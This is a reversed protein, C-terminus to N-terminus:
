QTLPYRPPKTSWSKPADHHSQGFGYMLDRFQKQSYIYGEHHPKKRRALDNFCREASSLKSERYNSNSLISDWGRARQNDRLYDFLRRGRSKQSAVNYSDNIELLQKIAKVHNAQAEHYETSQDTVNKLLVESIGVPLNTRHSDSEYASAPEVIDIDFTDFINLFSRAPLIKELAAQAAMM